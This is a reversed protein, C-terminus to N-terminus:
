IVSCIVGGFICFGIAIIICMCGVLAQKTAIAIIGIIYFIAAYIFICILLLLDM